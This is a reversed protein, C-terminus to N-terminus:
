QGAGEQNKGKGLVSQTTRFHYKAVQLLVQPGNRNTLIRAADEVRNSAGKPLSLGVEGSLKQLRNLFESRALVSAAAVAPDDEARPRQELVIKKGKEMLANQIFHPDGFQDALARPCDVRQLINELTRAHAWALIRNLNKIKEYLENYRRPGIVILSSIVRSEIQRALERVRQDSLKKSDKIGLSLLGAVQKPELYVGAVVLPGFYDGKGSEDIGIWGESGHNAKAM